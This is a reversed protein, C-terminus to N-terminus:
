LNRAVPNVLSRHFTALKALPVGVMTKNDGTSRMTRQSHNAVVIKGGPSVLGVSNGFLMQEKCIVVVMLGFHFVAVVLQPRVDYSAGKGVTPSLVHLVLWIQNLSAQNQAHCFKGFM